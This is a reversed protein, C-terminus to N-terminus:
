VYYIWMQSVRFVMNKTQLFDLSKEFPSRHDEFSRNLNTPTLKQAAALLQKASMGDEESGGELAVIIAWPGKGKQPVYPRISQLVIQM